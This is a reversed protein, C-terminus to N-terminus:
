VWLLILDNESLNSLLYSSFKQVVWWTMAIRKWVNWKLLMARSSKLRLWWNIGKRQWLIFNTKLIRGLFFCKDILCIHLLNEFVSVLKETALSLQKRNRKFMIKNLFYHMKSSVQFDNSLESIAELEKIRILLYEREKNVCSLENKLMQVDEQVCNYELSLIESDSKLM